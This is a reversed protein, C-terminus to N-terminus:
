ADLLKVSCEISAPGFGQGGESIAGDVELSQHGTRAMDLHLDDTIAPAADRV